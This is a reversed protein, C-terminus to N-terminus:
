LRQQEWVMPIRSLREVTLEPPQEGKLITDTLAPSLSACRLIKSVYRVTLGTESALQRLSHVEGAVIRDYWHRARALAKILSTRHEAERNAGNVVLQLQNSHRKLDLDCKVQLVSGKRASPAENAKWESGDPDLLLAILSQPVIDVRLETPTVVIREVFRRVCRGVETRNLRDWSNALGAGADVLGNWNATPSSAAETVKVLEDASSLLRQLRSLVHGELEQAPIRAIRSQSTPGQIVAQSTYYRYRRGKKNAHTPTYRWGEESFLLGTLFSSSSSVRARRNLRNAKLTEAVRDWTCRDIIGEHQGEYHEGLHSIQGIYLRNKLLQYLAGRSFGGGGTKHGKRDVREKTRIQRRELSQRLLRVCGQRLYERFIERVVKAEAQNIVLKHEKIEYGLPVMGGMWMGKKKSAAIKDRIREGIVEREFQAFSLLVNLTLRGMSTTMNFQQTVSVFSAKQKDFIEVIKAFDTLSRTLRDIKYVVVTNIKGSAIDELLQTLAPRDLNGGSFGGDDYHTRVCHWGEHRQSAIYAECAERQAHLSNFSQELGEESSKRTYIACHVKKHPDAM